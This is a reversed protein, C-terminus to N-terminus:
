LRTITRAATKWLFALFFVTDAVVLSYKAIKVVVILFKTIGLSTLWGVLFDLGVAPAYIVIFLLTGVVVQILLDWLVRVHGSAREATETVM